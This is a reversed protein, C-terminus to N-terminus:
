HKRGLETKTRLILRIRNNMMLYVQKPFRNMPMEDVKLWYTSASITSDKNLPYRGTDGYVMHNQTKDSVSLLRKCAFVHASEIVNLRVTGWTESDYLSMPKIQADFLQFFVRTNLSGLSWMSKNLDLVKGKARGAYDECQCDISLKTILTYSLYKYSNVAEIENGSYFWKKRATLYGLNDLTVTLGLSQSVKELNDIQNKLGSPTSSLLVIDYAFLLLFMEELGPLLEFGHKGNERVFYSLESVLLFFILSIFLCGQKM